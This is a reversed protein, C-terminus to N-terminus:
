EGREGEGSSLRYLYFDSDANYLKVLSYVEYDPHSSLYRRVYFGSLQRQHHDSQFFLTTDVYNEDICVFQLSEDSVFQFDDSSYARKFPQFDNYMNLHPLISWTQIHAVINPDEVYYDPQKSLVWRGTYSRYGEFVGHYLFYSHDASRYVPRGSKQSSTYSSDDVAVQHLFVTPFRDSSVAINFCSQGVAIYYSFFALFAFVFAM